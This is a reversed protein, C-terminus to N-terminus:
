IEGVTAPFDLKDVIHVDASLVLTYSHIDGGHNLVARPLVSVSPIAPVGCVRVGLAFAVGTAVGCIRVGFAFAVEAAM